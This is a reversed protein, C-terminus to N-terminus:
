RVSSQADPIKAADRDREAQAVEPRLEDADKIGGVRRGDIFLTPTGNVNNASALNLDRYALGLSMENDLCNQFQPVDLGKVCAGWAAFFTVAM